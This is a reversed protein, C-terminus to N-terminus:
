DYHRYVTVPSIRLYKKFTIPKRINLILLKKEIIEAINKSTAISERSVQPYSKISSFELDDNLIQDKNKEEIVEHGGQGEYNSKPKIMVDECDSLDYSANNSSQNKNDDQSM